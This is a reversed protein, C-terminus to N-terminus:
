AFHREIVHQRSVLAARQQHFVAPCVAATSSWILTEVPVSPGSTAMVCRRMGDGM